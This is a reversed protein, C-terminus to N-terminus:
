GGKKMKQAKKVAKRDWKTGHRRAEKIKERNVIFDLLDYTKLIITLFYIGLYILIMQQLNLFVAGIISAGDLLQFELELAGSFKYSWLYLCNLLVQILAFFGRRISQAPSSYAFFATGSILMGFALIWFVIQQYKSQTMGIAIGTGAAEGLNSIWTFTLFPIVMTLMIYIATFMTGRFINKGAGM